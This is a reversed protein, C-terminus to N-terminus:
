KAWTVSEGAPYVGRMYLVTHFAAELFQVISEITENYTLSSETLSDVERMKGKGKEMAQTSPSAAATSTMKPQANAFPAFTFSSTERALSCRPTKTSALRMGHYVRWFGAVVGIRSTHALM